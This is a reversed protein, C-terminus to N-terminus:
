NTSWGPASALWGQIFNSCKSTNPSIKKSHIAIIKDVDTSTMYDGQLKSRPILFRCLDIINQPPWYLKSYVILYGLVDAPKSLTGNMGAQLIDKSQMLLHLLRNLTKIKTATSPSSSSVTVTSCAATCASCLQWNGKAASLANSM